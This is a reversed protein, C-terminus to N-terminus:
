AMAAPDERESRPRPLAPQPPPLIPQPFPGALGALEIQRQRWLGFLGAVAGSSHNADAAATAPKAERSALNVALILVWASALGAWAQPCPWLLSSLRANLVSGLSPKPAPRVATASAALIEARWEVPVPRFSQRQLQREFDDPNM